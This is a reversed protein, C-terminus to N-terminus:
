VKRKLKSRIKVCRKWLKISVPSINRAFVYVSTDILMRWTIKIKEKPEGLKMSNFLYVYPGMRLERFSRLKARDYVRTVYGKASARLGFEFDEGEFHFLNENLRVKEWVAKKIAMYSGGVFANPDWDRAELGLPWGLRSAVSWPVVTEAASIIPFTIIEFYNGHKKMGGYWGKDLYLHDHLLLINEYKASSCIVNKKRTIWGKDDKETFPIFVIDKAKAIKEDTKGCIIIEYNPIKQKRISEIGQKLWEDRKGNTVIGFTWRDISDGKRLYGETKQFVTRAKGGKEGHEVVRGFRGIFRKALKELDKRDMINNPRYEVVLYGGSKLYKVLESLIVPAFKTSNISDINLVFDLSEFKVDPYLSYLNDYPKQIHKLKGQKASSTDIGRGSLYRQSEEM